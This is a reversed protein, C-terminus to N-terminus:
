RRPSSGPPQGPQQTRLPGRRQDRVGDVPEGGVRAGVADGALQGHEAAEAKCLTGFGIQRRASAAIERISRRTRASIVRRRDPSAPSSM